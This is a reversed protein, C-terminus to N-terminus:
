IKSIKEIGDDRNLNLEMECVMSRGRARSSRAADEDDHTCKVSASRVVRQGDDDCRGVCRARASSRVM